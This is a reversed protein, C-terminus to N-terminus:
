GKPWSRTILLVKNDVRAPYTVLMLYSRADKFWKNDDIELYAIIPGEYCPIKNKMLVLLQM